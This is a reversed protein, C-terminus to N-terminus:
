MGIGENKESPQWGADATDDILLIIFIALYLVSVSLFSPTV